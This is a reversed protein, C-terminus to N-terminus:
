LLGGLLGGKNILSTIINFLFIGFVSFILTIILISDFDTRYCVNDTVEIPNAYETIYQSYNATNFSYYFGNNNTYVRYFNYSGNHLVQTDYLDIYGNGFRAFHYQEPIDGIFLKDM